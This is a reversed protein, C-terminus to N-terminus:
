QTTNANQLVRGIGNVIPWVAVGVQRLKQSPRNAAISMSRFTPPQQAGKRPPGSDGDLVIDDPGM